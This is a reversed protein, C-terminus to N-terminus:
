CAGAEMPEPSAPRTRRRRTSGARTLGPSVTFRQVLNLLADSCIALVAVLLGASVMAPYGYRPDNLQGTGAIIPAGLGGLFPAYAAITATAIVQLTASRLGSMILPLAIPFEVRTIVQRGTMGMGRAADRAAPDVNQVGAYTNTLIPPIALVILVVEVAIFYPLVGTAILGPVTLTSHIKPALWLVLLVVFGLAPVARLGNALGGIVGAGRGTHGILLGLPLAILLAIVVAILTYFVHQRLDVLLGNPGWWNSPDNLFLGVRSFNVGSDALPRASGAIGTM